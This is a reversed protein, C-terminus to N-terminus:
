LGDAKRDSIDVVIRAPESLRDISIASGAPSIFRFGALWQVDAEFDCLQKIERLKNTPVGAVGKVTRQGSETHARAPRLTVLLRADGSVGVEEGSGCQVAPGDLWHVSVEPIQGRFEFVIREFGPHSAVRVGVLEAVQPTEEHGAEATGENGREKTKENAVASDVQRVM